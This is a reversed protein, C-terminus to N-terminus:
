FIILDTISYYKGNDGKKIVVEHEFNNDRIRKNLSSYIKDNSCLVYIKKTGDSILINRVVQTIFNCSIGSKNCITSKCSKCFMHTTETVLKDLFISVLNYGICFDQLTKRRFSKILKSNIVNNKSHLNNVYLNNIIIANDPLDIVSRSIEGVILSNNEFIEAILQNGIERVQLNHLLYCKGKKIKMALTPNWIRISLIDHIRAKEININSKRNTNRTGDIFNFTTYEITESKDIVTLCLGKFDFCTNEEIAEIKKFNTKTFETTSSSHTYNKRNYLDRPSIADPFVKEFVENLKFYLAKLKDPTIDTNIKVYSYKDFTFNRDMTRNIVEVRGDDKIYGIIDHTKKVDKYIRLNKLIVIDRFSFYKEYIKFQSFIRVCLSDGHEDLIYITTIYDTGVTPKTPLHSSIIGITMSSTNFPIDRITKYTLSNKTTDTKNDNNSIFTTRNYEM